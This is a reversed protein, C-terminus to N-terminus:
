NTFDDADAPETTTSRHFSVTKPFGRPITVPWPLETIDKVLYKKSNPDMYSAKNNAWVVKIELSM